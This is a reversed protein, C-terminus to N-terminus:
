PNAYAFTRKLRGKLMVFCTQVHDLRTERGQVCDLLDKHRIPSRKCRHCEVSPVRTMVSAIPVILSNTVVVGDVVDAGLLFAHCAGRM